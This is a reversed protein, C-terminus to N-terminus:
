LYAVYEKEDSYTDVIRMSWKTISRVSLGAMWSTSSKGCIRGSFHSQPATTASIPLRANWLVEGM